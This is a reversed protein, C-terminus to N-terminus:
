HGSGRSPGCRLSVSAAHAFFHLALSLLFSFPPKTWSMHTGTGQPSLDTQSRVHTVLKFSQELSVQQVAFLAGSCSRVIAADAVNGFM